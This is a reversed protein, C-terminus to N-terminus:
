VDKGDIDALIQKLKELDEASTAWSTCFRVARRNKDLEQWVEYSVKGALAEEQKKTLIVFQQNTPSDFFQPCGAEVLISKLRMAMEIAHRSIKYYLDDTFLVDFQIGLLRGKALMAGQQKIL